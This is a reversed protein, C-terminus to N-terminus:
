SLEIYRNRITTITSYNETTVLNIFLEKIKSIYKEKKTIECWRFWTPYNQLYKTAVGKFGRIWGKLRSYYSNVHQIHYIGDKYKVSEIRKLTVNFVTPIKMYSYPSDVCLTSSEEIKNNFFGKLQSFKVRGTCLKESLVNGVMKNLM